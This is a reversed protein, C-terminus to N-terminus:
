PRATNDAIEKIQIATMPRERGESAEITMISYRVAMVAIQNWCLNLRAKMVVAMGDGLV